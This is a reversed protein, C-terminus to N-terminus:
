LIRGKTKGWRACGDIRVKGGKAFQASPEPASDPAASAAISPIAMPQPKAAADQLTKLKAAVATDVDKKVGAAGTAASAGMFLPAFMPLFASAVGLGISAGTLKNVGM